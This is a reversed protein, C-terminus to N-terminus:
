RTALAQAIAIAAGATTAVVGVVVKWRSTARAAARESTRRHEAITAGLSAITAAADIRQALARIEDRQDCLAAAVGEVAREIRGLRTSVLDDRDHLAM